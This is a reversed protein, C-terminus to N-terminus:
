DDSVTQLHIFWAPRAKCLHRYKIIVNEIKNKNKKGSACISHVGTLEFSAAGRFAKRSPALDTDSRAGKIDQHCGDSTSESHTVLLTSSTPGAPERILRCTLPTEM